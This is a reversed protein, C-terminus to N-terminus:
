ILIESFIPEKQKDMAEPKLVKEIMRAVREGSECAAEMTGSAHMLISTREGAFYIKKDIPTFLSKITEKKQNHKISLFKNKIM